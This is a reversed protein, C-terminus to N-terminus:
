FYGGQEKDRKMKLTKNFVERIDKETFNNLELIYFINNSARLKKMQKSDTKRKLSKSVKINGIM